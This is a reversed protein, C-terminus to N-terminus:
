PCRNVPGPPLAEKLQPGKRKHAGTKRLTVLLPVHWDKDSARLGLDRHAIKQCAASKTMQLPTEQDYSLAFLLICDNPHCRFSTYTVPRQGIAEKLSQEASSNDASGNFDGAVIDLKLLIVRHWFEKLVNNAADPKKALVNNVHASCVNWVEKGARPIREFPQEVNTWHVSAAFYWLREGRVKSANSVWPNVISDHDIRSIYKRGSGGALILLNGEAYVYKGDHTKCTEISDYTYRFGYTNFHRWAHRSAAEQILAIHHKGCIFPVVMSDQFLGETSIGGRDLNGANWVLVTLQQSSAALSIDGFRAEEGQNDIHHRMQEGDDRKGLWNYRPPPLIGAVSGISGKHRVLELHDEDDDARYGLGEGFRNPKIEYDNPNYALPRNRKTM